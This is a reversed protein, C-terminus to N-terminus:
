IMSTRQSQNYTHLTCLVCCQLFCTWGKQQVSTFEPFYFTISNDGWLMFSFLYFALRTLSRNFFFYSLRKIKYSKHAFPKSTESKCLEPTKIAPAPRAQRHQYSHCHRSPLLPPSWSGPSRGNRSPALSLHEGLGGKVPM